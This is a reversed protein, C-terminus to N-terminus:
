NYKVDKKLLEVKVRMTNAKQSESDTDELEIQMLERKRTMLKNKVVRNRICDELEQKM